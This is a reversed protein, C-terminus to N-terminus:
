LELYFRASRASGLWVDELQKSHGADNIASNLRSEWEIVLQYRGSALAEYRWPSYSIASSSKSRELNVRGLSISAGPAIVQFMHERVRPDYKMIERRDRPKLEQGKPDLLRVRAPQLLPHILVRLDQNTTNQLSIEPFDAVVIKMPQSEPSAEQHRTQLEYRYHFRPEFVESVSVGGPDPDRSDASTITHSGPTLTVAAEGHAAIVAVQKFDVFLYQPVRAYNIVTLQPSSATTPTKSLNGASSPTASSESSEDPQAPAPPASGARQEAAVSHAEPSQAQQSPTQPSPPSCASGPLLAVSLSLLIAALRMCPLKM